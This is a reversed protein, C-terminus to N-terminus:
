EEKTQSFLVVSYFEGNKNEGQVSWHIKKYRYAQIYNGTTDM